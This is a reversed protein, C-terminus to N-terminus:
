APQQAAEDSRDGEAPPCRHKLAALVVNAMWSGFGTMPHEPTWGDPRYELRMRELPEQRNCTVHTVCLNGEYDNAEVYFGALHGIWFVPRTGFQKDVVLARQAPDVSESVLPEM